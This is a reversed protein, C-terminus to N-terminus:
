RSLINDDKISTFNCHLRGETSKALTNALYVKTFLEDWQEMQNWLTALLMLCLRCTCILHINTRKHKKHKTNKWVVIFIEDLVLQQGRSLILLPIAKLDEM